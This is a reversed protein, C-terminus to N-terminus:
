PEAELEPESDADAPDECPTPGSEYSSFDFGSEPYQESAALLREALLETTIAQPLLDTTGDPMYIAYVPIGAYPFPELWANIEDNDVTLDAQMPLIGTDTLVQRIRPVEIFLRENTKCNACWDATYDIFVPRNATRMADVMASDFPVWNIHDEVVVPGTPYAGGTTVHTSGGRAAPTLDIMQTGALVLLGISVGRVAYRRTTTHIPGGFRDIAWVAVGTLLLFAVFMSASGTAIQKQLVSFLWVSAGLLTFGMLHKFTEMWAGPRPLARGLAPVFSILVFPSALGFGIVVFVSMTHWWAADAALAFGAATGLFPASCPTSMVSAVIGNVFSGMLGGKQEAQVSVSFEFIGLGNLGFVFVLWTLAAVFGPETFQMGWNFQEGTAKVALVFIGFVVFTVVVGAAYAIGHKKHTLADDKAHEILHFVKMTLVPLVCPMVNLVIGGLFAFLLYQLFSGDM